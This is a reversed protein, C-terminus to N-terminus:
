RETMTVQRLRFEVVTKSFDFMKDPSIIGELLEKMVVLNQPTYFKRILRLYDQEAETLVGGTADKYLISFDKAMVLKFNRTYEIDNIELSLKKRLEGQCKAEVDTFTPDERWRTLTKHHIKTLKLAETVTFNAILYGLYQVKKSGISTDDLYYPVISRVLSETPTTEQDNAELTM